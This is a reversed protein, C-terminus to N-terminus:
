NQPYYEQRDKFFKQNTTWIELQKHWPSIFECFNNLYINEISKSIKKKNLFGSITGNIIAKLATFILSSEYGYKLTIISSSCLAKFLNQGSFYKSIVYHINRRGYYYRSKVVRNTPSSCHYAVISPEYLTEWGDDRVRINFDLEHVYLFINSDFLGANEFVKKRIMAGCGWFSLNGTPYAETFEFGTHPNIIKFSLIGLLENNQFHKNAETLSTGKIYSDDDLVVIFEGSARKFAHNWASVGENNSLEILIYEPHNKKIYDGTGDNSCNDVVIVEINKYDLNNIEHITQKIDNIRNYSLIAITIKPNKM